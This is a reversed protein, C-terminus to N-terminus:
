CLTVLTILLQAYKLSNSNSNKKERELTVFLKQEIRERKGRISRERLRNKHSKILIALAQM